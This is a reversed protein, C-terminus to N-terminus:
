AAGRTTQKLYQLKALAPRVRGRALDGAARFGLHLRVIRKGRAIRAARQWGQAHARAAIRDLVAVEEEFRTMDETQQSTASAAHRRYAYARRRTGVIEDGDLLLTALLDLDQVQKWGAAFRRLGLVPRRWAVTPCMVFDARALAALGPEGALRWPEGAPVFRRKVWDPFSFARRGAGDVIEADCALAVARPHADALEAIVDAYDPLLRDDGHLLTVLETTALDLGLNWNAVMGLCRPNARHEIRADGLSRVLEAAGPEVQEDLVLCRWDDRRQARVSALAEGLYGLGRYFPIAFTFRPKM